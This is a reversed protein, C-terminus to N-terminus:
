LLPLLELALVFVSFYPGSPVASKFIFLILPYLHIHLLFSTLSYSSQHEVYFQEYAPFVESNNAYKRLIQLEKRKM